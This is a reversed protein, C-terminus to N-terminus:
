RLFIINEGVLTLLTLIQVVKSMLPVFGHICVNKLCNLLRVKTYVPVFCVNLSSCQWRSPIKCHIKATKIGGGGFFFLVSLVVRGLAGGGKQWRFESQSWCIDSM